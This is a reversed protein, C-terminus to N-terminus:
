QRISAAVTTATGASVDVVAEFRSWEFGRTVYARYRGAPVRVDFAGDASVDYRVTSSAGGFFWRTSGPM